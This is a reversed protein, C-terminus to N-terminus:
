ASSPMRSSAVHSSNLRTSKRDKWSLVLTVMVNLLVPVEFEFTTAIYSPVDEVFRVASALPFTLGATGFVIRASEDCSKLRFM